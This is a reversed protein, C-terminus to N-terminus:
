SKGTPMTFTITARPNSTRSDRGVAYVRFMYKQGPVLDFMRRSKGGGNLLEWVPDGSAPVVARQATYASAGAVADWGFKVGGKKVAKVGAADPAALAIGATSAARKGRTEAKLENLIAPNDQVAASVVSVVASCTAEADTVLEPQADTLGARQTDLKSISDVNTGLKTVAAVAKTLAPGCVLDAKLTPSAGCMDLFLQIATRTKAATTRAARTLPTKLQVRTDSKQSM